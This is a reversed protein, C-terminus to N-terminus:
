EIERKSVLNLVGKLLAMSPQGLSKLAEVFKGYGVRLAFREQLPCFIVLM